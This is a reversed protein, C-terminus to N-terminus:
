INSLYRLAIPALHYIPSLHSMERVEKEDVSVWIFNSLISISIFFFLACRNCTTKRLPVVYDGKLSYFQRSWQYFCICETHKSHSFWVLMFFPHHYYLLLLHYIFM